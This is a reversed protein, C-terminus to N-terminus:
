NLFKKFFINESFVLKQLSLLLLSKPIEFRVYGILNLTESYVVCRIKSLQKFNHYVYFVSM